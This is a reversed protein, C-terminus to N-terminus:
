RHAWGGEKVSMRGAIWILAPQLVAADWLIQALTRQGATQITAASGQLRIRCRLANEREGCADCLILLRVAAQTGAPLMEVPLLHEIGAIGM